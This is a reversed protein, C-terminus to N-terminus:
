FKDSIKEFSTIRSYFAFEGKELGIKMDFIIKVISWNYVPMSDMGFYDSAGLKGVRVPEENEASRQYM